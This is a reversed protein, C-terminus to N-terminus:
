LSGFFLSQPKGRPELAAVSICVLGDVRGDALWVWGVIKRMGVIMVTKKVNLKTVKVVASLWQCSSNVWNWCRRRTHARTTFILCSQSVVNTPCWSLLKKYQRILSKIVIYHLKNSCKSIFQIQSDNVTCPKYSKMLWGTSYGAIVNRGVLSTGSYRLM